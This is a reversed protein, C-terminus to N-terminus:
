SGSFLVIPHPLSPCAAELGAAVCMLGEGASEQDSDTTVERADTRASPSRVCLVPIECTEKLRLFPYCHVLLGRGRGLNPDSEGATRASFNAFELM